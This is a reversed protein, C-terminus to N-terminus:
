MKLVIKGRQHPRTGDIMEHALQADALPLITGVQPRLLTLSALAAIASLSRAEVDVIFYHAFLDDRGLAIVDLPEVISVIVAERPLATAADRLLEGGVTDFLVRSAGCAASLGDRGIFTVGDDVPASADVPGLAFVRHGRLRALTVLLRGVNGAAGLITVTEHSAVDDILALMEWATVGIIPLSAAEEFSLGCPIRVLRRTQAIAHTAYGGSFRDNTVGFVPDGEKFFHDGPDAKEVIGAIDSGLILPLDGRSVKTSQGTRIWADWPGVGAAHVRVLTQGATPIPTEFTDFRLAEPGGFDHIRIAKM